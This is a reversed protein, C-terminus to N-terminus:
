PTEVCINADALYRKSYRFEKILWGPIVIKLREPSEWGSIDNTQIDIKSKPFWKMGDRKSTIGSAIDFGIAKETEIFANKSCDIYYTMGNGGQQRSDGKLTHTRLDKREQNNM